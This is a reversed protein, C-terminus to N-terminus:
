LSSARGVCKRIWVAWAHITHKNFYAEFRQCCNCCNQEMCRKRAM